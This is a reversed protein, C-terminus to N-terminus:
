ADGEGAAVFQGTEASLFLLVISDPVFSHLM